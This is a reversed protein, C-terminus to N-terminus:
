AAFAAVTGAGIVDRAAAVFSFDEDKFVSRGRLYCAATQGAVGAGMWVELTGRMAACLYAADITVARMGELAFGIQEFDRLRLETVGAVGVHFGRERLREMVFHIFAQQGAAITVIRMAREFGLLQLRGSILVRDAGLAVGLGRTWEDKLMGHDLGFAADGAVRRVSGGVRAQQVDAIHVRQAQLAVRRGVQVRKRIGHRLLATRNVILGCLVCWAGVAVALNM